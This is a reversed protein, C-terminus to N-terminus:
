KGNTHPRLCFHRLQPGDSVLRKWCIDERNLVVFGNGPDYLNDPLLQTFTLAKKAAGIQQSAM